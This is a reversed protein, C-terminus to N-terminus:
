DDPIAEIRHQLDAPSMQDSTKINPTVVHEVADRYGFNNKGLFIGSAPNIKGNQMIQEWYSGMYAHAKKIANRVECPVNSRTETDNVLELLRTRDIGLAMALNAVGPKMDCAICLQFYEQIRDSVQAANNIDIPDMNYVAMGFMVYRANDGPATKIAEDSNPFYGNAKNSTRPKTKKEIYALAADKRVQDNPKRQTYYRKPPAPQKAQATDDLIGPDANETGSRRTKNQAHENTVAESSSVDASKTASKRTKATKEASKASKVFIDCETSEMPEVGESGSNEPAIQAMEATNDTKPKRPM